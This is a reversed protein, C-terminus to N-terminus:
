WGVEATQVTAVWRIEEGNGQVQVGLADNTTDAVIRVDWATDDEGLVTVTSGLLITTASSVNEIVGVIRYGASEGAATRGVILIDFTMTRGSAITLLGSAGDLYLDYWAGATMTASRRMVYLSAQADGRNAFDGSAYAMEGYHSALASKGGPITAHDGTAYNDDGGAVTAYWNSATNYQGGGITAGWGSANNNIGGGVTSTSGSAQNGSGGGVAATTHAINGSGGGITAYEGSATNGVGGGIAAANGSATNGATTTGNWGGGGVFAGDGSAINNRGGGVVASDGTATINYGGAITGYTSTVINSFGGGITAYYGSAKNIEGGGIVASDGTILNSYGGGVTAYSATTTILNGYGGGITSAIAWAENGNRSSGDWGGGGVTAGAGNAANDVGGSITAAYGSAMNAYGGGIAADIGSATNSDGGGVTAMTGSATNHYGGGIATYTGSATNHYGGGIAACYATATILNGYGGGITSAIAWAENGDRYDGDWGGGGVTAGAGNATNLVGGGIAAYQGGATNDWGGGVFANRGSAVDHSGGGVTAWDGSATNGEGGGITAYQGAVANDYGGAIIGYANTILNGGGGGITAYSVNTGSIVNAGYMPSGGGGITAGEAGPFISNGSYGGIINPGGTTPILRLAATNSVRLTLTINDTTGMFNTAPNAGANGTLSWYDGGAGVDDLAPAWASGDWKLVQGSAPATTTIPQNQLAGTSNSFHAYPAATLEQRPSLTVYAPDGACQVAIQLWRAEGTFANAGFDLPATFLGNSLTVTQTIPSSVQAGDSAQDYLRFALSCEGSVANGGQVLRGQYTFGADLPALPASGQVVEGSLAIVLALALGFSFMRTLFQKTNM